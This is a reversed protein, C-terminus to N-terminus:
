LRCDLWCSQELWTRPATSSKRTITRPRIRVIRPTIAPNGTESLQNTRWIAKTYTSINRLVGNSKCSNKQYKATKRLSGSISFRILAQDSRGSLDPAYRGQTCAVFPVPTHTNNSTNSNYSAYGCKPTVYRISSCPRESFGTNHAKPGGNGDKESEDDQSVIGNLNFQGLHNSTCLDLRTLATLPIRCPSTTAVPLKM